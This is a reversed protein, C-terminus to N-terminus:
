GWGRTRVIGRLEPRGQVPRKWRHGAQWRFGDAEPLWEVSFLRDRWIEPQDDVPLVSEDLHLQRLIGNSGRLECAQRENSGAQGAARLDGDPDVVQIRVSSMGTWQILAHLQCVPPQASCSHVPPAPGSLTSQLATGVGPARRM